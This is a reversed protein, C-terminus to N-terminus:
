RFTPSAKVPLTKFVADITLHHSEVAESHKYAPANPLFRWEVILQEFAEMAIIDVEGQRDVLTVLVIHASHDVNKM